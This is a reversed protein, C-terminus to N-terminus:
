PRKPQTKEIESVKQYFAYAAGIASEAISCTSDFKSPTGLKAIFIQEALKLVNQEM